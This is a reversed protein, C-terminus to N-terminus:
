ARPNRLRDRLDKARAVEERLAPATAAGFRTVLDDCAAIAEESRGLTGLAVGKNFLANAVAICSIRPRSNRLGSVIEVFAGLAERPKGLHFTAGGFILKAKAWEDDTTATELARKSFVLAEDHKEGEAYKSAEALWYRFSPTPVSDLSTGTQPSVGVPAASLRANRSEAHTKKWDILLRELIDTFKEIDAYQKFLYKRGNEIRNKFKLVQNLQEGPDRLKGEDIEKFFLAINRIKANNEYLKEALQFEEETGSAHGNGTPSGFWDHLVFVAYDCGELDRNIVEQPRGAGPLTDEWGVPHFVVDDDHMESFKRLKDRFCEREEELGGPSGIFVRYQTISRPM